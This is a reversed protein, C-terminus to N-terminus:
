VQYREQTQVKPDIGGEEGSGVGWALGEVGAGMGGGQKGGGRGMIGKDPDESVSTLFSAAAFDIGVAEEEGREVGERGERREREDEEEEPITLNARIRIQREELRTSGRDDGIDRPLSVCAIKEEEENRPFYLKLLADYAALDVSNRVVFVVSINEGHRELFRRVTSPLPSSFLFPSLFPFFLSLFLLLFLNYHRNVQVFLSILM